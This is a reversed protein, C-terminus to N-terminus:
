QTQKVPKRRPRLSRAFLLSPCTIQDTPRSMACGRLDCWWKKLTLSRRQVIRNHTHTHTHTHTNTQALHAHARPHQCAWQVAHAHIRTYACTHAGSLAWQAGPPVTAPGRPPPCRVQAHPTPIHSHTRLVCVWVRLVCCVGMVKWPQWKRMKVNECKVWGDNECKWMRINLEGTMKANERKRM